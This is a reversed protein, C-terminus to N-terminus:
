KNEIFQIRLGNPDLIFFFEIHPNPSIPREAIEIGKNSLEEIKKSVSDVEFGISIDKGIDSKETKDYCILEIKTEGDGMFAIETGPESKFRKDLALGIIDEYFKVSKDLDTTNITCWSFKM